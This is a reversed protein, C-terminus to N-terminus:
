DVKPNTLGTQDQYKGKKDAYSVECHRKAPQLEDAVVFDQRGELHDMLATFLAATNGASELFLVQAIGEGAYVVSPMPATNSLEMTIKGRWEPELPTVNVILGCRAYTSKGIVIGLCGRPVDIAELTEALAFSNPPIVCVDEGHENKWAPMEVMGRPDFRKPDIVAGHVNTFVKFNYGLRLDYGYSTVGYSIVGPRKVGEAFPTIIDGKRLMWDPLVGM